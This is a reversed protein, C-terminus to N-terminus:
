PSANSIAPASPKITSLGAGLGPSAGLYFKLFADAASNGIKLDINTQEPNVTIDGPVIAVEDFGYSHRLQKFQPITMDGM